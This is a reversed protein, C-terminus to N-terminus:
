GEMRQPCWSSAPNPSCKVFPIAYTDTCNSTCRVVSSSQMLSNRRCLTSTAARVKYLMLCPLLASFRVLGHHYLVKVSCREPPTHPCSMSPGNVNASVTRGSSITSDQNQLDEPHNSAVNREMGGSIDGSRLQRCLYPGSLSGRAGDQGRLTIDGRLWNAPLLKALSHWCSPGGQGISM